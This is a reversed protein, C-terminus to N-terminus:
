KIEFYSYRSYSTTKIFNLKGENESASDILDDLYLGINEATDKIDFKSIEKNGQLEEVQNAAAETVELKFTGTRAAGEGTFQFKSILDRDQEDRFNLPFLFM